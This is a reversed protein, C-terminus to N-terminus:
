FSCHFILGNLRTYQLMCSKDWTYKTGRGYCYHKCLLTNLLWSITIGTNRARSCADGVHHQCTVPFCCCKPISRPKFLKMFQVNKSSPQSCLGYLTKLTLTICATNLRVEAAYCFLLVLYLGNVSLQSYWFFFKLSYHQFKFFFDVNNVNRLACDVREQLFCSRFFWSSVYAHM